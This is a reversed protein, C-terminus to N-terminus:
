STGKSAINLPFFEKWNIEVENVFDSFYLPIPKDRIGWREFVYRARWAIFATKFCTCGVILLGCIAFGAHLISTSTLVEFLMFLFFSISLYSVVMVGKYRKIFDDKTVLPSVAPGEKNANNKSISKAESITNKYEMKLKLSSKAQDKYQELLSM